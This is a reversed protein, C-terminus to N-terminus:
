DIRRNRKWNSVKFPNIQIDFEKNEKFLKAALIAAVEGESKDYNDLKNIDFHNKVFHTDFKGKIFLPHKMVFKGFSLTTNVGIITYDDIARIMKEIAENRDKGYTILKSIMPDYYIPIDM